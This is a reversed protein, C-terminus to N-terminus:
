GQNIWPKQTEAGGVLNGDKDYLEIRYEMRIGWKNKFFRRFQFLRHIFKEYIKEFKDGM